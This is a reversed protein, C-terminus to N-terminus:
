ALSRLSLCYELLSSVPQQGDGDGDHHQDYYHDSKEYKTKFVYISITCQGLIMWHILRVFRGEGLPWTLM